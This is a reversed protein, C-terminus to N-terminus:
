PIQNGGAGGSHTTCRYRCTNAQETCNILRNHLSECAQQASNCDALCQGENFCTTSDGFFYQTAASQPSVAATGGPNFIGFSVSAPGCQSLQAWVKIESDSILTAQQSGIQFRAGGFQVFQATAMCSGTITVLTPQGVPGSSPSLSLITPSCYTYTVPDSAVHDSNVVQIAAPGPHAIPSSLQIQTASRSTIASSDLVANGFLIKDITGVDLGTGSLTVATGGAPPGVAPTVGSIALAPSLSQPTWSVLYTAKFRELTPGPALQASVEVCDRSVTVTRSLGSLTNDTFRGDIVEQIHPVLNQPTRTTSLGSSIGEPCAFWTATGPAPANPQVCLAIPINTKIGAKAADLQATKPSPAADNFTQVSDVPHIELWGDFNHFASNWCVRDPDTRSHAIDQWLTGTIEIHKGEPLSAYPNLSDPHDPHFPWWDDATNPPPQNLLMADDMQVGLEDEVWGDPAPGRATYNELADCFVAFGL